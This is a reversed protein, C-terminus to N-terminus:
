DISSSCLARQRSAFREFGITIPWKTFKITTYVARIGARDFLDEAGDRSRVAHCSLMRVASVPLLRIYQIALMRHVM